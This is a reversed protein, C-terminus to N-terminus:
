NFFNSVARMAIDRYIVSDYEGDVIFVVSRQM